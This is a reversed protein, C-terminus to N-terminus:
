RREIVLGFDRDMGKSLITDGSRRRHLPQGGIIPGMRDLGVRGVLKNEYGVDRISSGVCDKLEFEVLGASMQCGVRRGVYSWFTIQAGAVEAKM